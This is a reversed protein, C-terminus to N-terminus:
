VEVPLGAKRWALIGGVINFTHSFGLKALKECADASRKGGHCIVVILSNRHPELESARGVLSGLPILVSDPAHGAQYEHPERVDLILAGKDRAYALATEPSIDKVGRFVNVLRKWAERPVEIVPSLALVWQPRVSAEAM